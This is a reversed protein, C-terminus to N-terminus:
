SCMYVPSSGWLIKSLFCLKDWQPSTNQFVVNTKKHYFNGSRGERGLGQVVFNDANGPQDPEESAPMLTARARSEGRWLVRNSVSRDPKIQVIISKEMHLAFGSGRSLVQAPSSGRSKNVHFGFTPQRYSFYNTLHHAAQQFQHQPQQQQQQNHPSGVATLERLRRETKGKLSFHVGQYLVSRKGTWCNQRNNSCCRTSVAKRSNENCRTAISVAQTWTTTNLYNFHNCISHVVTCTLQHTVCLLLVEM